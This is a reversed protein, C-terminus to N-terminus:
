LNPADLIQEVIRAPHVAHHGRAINIKSIFKFHARTAGRSLDFLCLSLLLLVLFSLLGADNVCFHACGAGIRRLIAHETEFGQLMTNDEFHGHMSSVSHNGVTVQTGSRGSKELDPPHTLSNSERLDSWLTKNFLQTRRSRELCDSKRKGSLLHRLRTRIQQSRHKVSKYAQKKEFDVFEITLYALTNGFTFGSSIFIPRVNKTM